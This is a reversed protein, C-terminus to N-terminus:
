TFQSFKSQTKFLFSSFLSGKVSFNPYRKIEGGTYKPLSALSALDQFPGVQLLPAMFLDVSIQDKSLQLAMNKYNESEPQFLKTEANTGYVLSEAASLNSDGAESKERNKLSNQGINPLSSMFIMLKGGRKSLITGAAHLASGLCCDTEKGFNKVFQNMASNKEGMKKLFNTMNQQNDVLNVLLHPTVTPIMMQNIDSIVYMKPNKKPQFEYFQVSSNFTILGVRIREGGQKKLFEPNELVSAITECATQFMGSQLTSATLELIFLLSLSSPAKQLYEKPTIFDM